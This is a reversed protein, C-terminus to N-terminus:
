RMGVLARGEVIKGLCNRETRFFRELSAESRKLDDESIDKARKRLVGDVGERVSQLDAGLYKLRTFGPERLVLQLKTSLGGLLIKASVMKRNIIDTGAGRRVAKILGIFEDIFTRKARFYDALLGQTKFNSVRTLLAEEEANTMLIENLLEKEVPPTRVLYKIAGVFRDVISVCDTFTM